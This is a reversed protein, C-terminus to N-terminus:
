KQYNLTHVVLQLWQLSSQHNGNRMKTIFIQPMFLSMLVSKWFRTVNKYWHCHQLISHLLYSGSLLPAHIWPVFPTSSFLTQRLFFNQNIKSNKNVGNNKITAWFSVGIRLVKGSRFAIRLYASRCCFNRVTSM